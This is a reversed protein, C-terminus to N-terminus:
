GHKYIEVEAPRATKEFSHSNEWKQFEEYKKDFEKQDVTEKIRALENRNNTRTRTMYEEYHKWLAENIRYGPRAVQKILNNLLENDTKAVGVAKQEKGNFKEGERPRYEQVGFTNELYGMIRSRFSEVKSATFTNWGDLEQRLKLLPELIRKEEDNKFNVAGSSHEVGQRYLTEELEDKLNQFSIDGKDISGLYLILDGKLAKAESYANNEIQQNLLPEGEIKSEEEIREAEEGINRGDMALVEEKTPGNEVLKRVYERYNRLEGLKKGYARGFRQELM